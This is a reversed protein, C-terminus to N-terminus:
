KENNKIYEAKRGNIETWVSDPVMNKIISYIGALTEKYSEEPFYPTAIKPPTQDLNPDQQLTITINQSPGGDPIKEKPLEPITENLV